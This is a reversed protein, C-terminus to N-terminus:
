KNLHYINIGADATSIGALNQRLTRNASKIADNVSIGYGRKAMEDALKNLYYQGQSPRVGRRALVRNSEALAAARKANYIRKAKSSQQAMVRGAGTGVRKWPKSSLAKETSSLIKKSAVGAKSAKNISNLFKLGLVDLLFEGGNWAASGLSNGNDKYSRVADRITQYGDIVLNPINAVGSVVTAVPIGVGTAAAGLGIADGALGLGAAYPELKDSWDPEYEVKTGGQASLIMQKNDILAAASLLRQGMNHNTANNLIKMGQKGVYISNYGGSIMQSYRQNNISSMYQSRINQIENQDALDLITNWANNAFEINRDARRRAGQSFTGYRKNAEERALDFRKNLDGYGGQMFDYASQINQISQNDFNQTKKSGWMNVWKVPAPMFASGLIADTYTMGDTSGFVNSLGKNLAMVGGIAQGYGPIFGVASQVLDYATDMGKTIGGHRGDYEHSPGLAAQLGTGLVTAGLAYPNIAGAAKTVNGTEDVSEVGTSFAKLGKGATGFLKTAKGAINGNRILNSLITGGVTGIGTAVGQGIGRSLRSNNGIKNIGQGILNGTIGSVTGAVSSGVDKELGDFIANGKIINQAINNSSAGIGSSLIQGLWGGFQNLNNNSNNDNSQTINPDSKIKSSTVVQNNIDLNLLQPNTIGQHEWNIDIM